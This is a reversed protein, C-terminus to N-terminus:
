PSNPLLKAALGATECWSRAHAARPAFSDGVRLARGFLLQVRAPAWLFSNRAEQLWCSV